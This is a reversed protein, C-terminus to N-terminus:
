IGDLRTGAGFSRMQADAAARGGNASIAGIAPLEGVDVDVVRAGLDQPPALSFRLAREALVAMPGYVIWEAAPRDASALAKLVIEPGIGAPDGVTLALRPLAV